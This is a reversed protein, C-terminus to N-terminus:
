KSGLMTVMLPVIALFVFAPLVGLGLPLMLRVGLKEIKIETKVNEAEQMSQSQRLLLESVRAGTESVLQELQQLEVLENDPPEKGFHQIYTKTVLEKAQFLSAGGSTALAVGLLYFGASTAEPQAKKLMRGTVLKSTLLLCLGFLFSVFVIPRHALTGIVDWGVLQAMALTLLPLWIVLRSTSKPNAHAVRIRQTFRDRARILAAVSDLENAVSSGSNKAVTLIYSLGVSNTPVDGISALAQELSVGSRLLGALKTLKIADPTLNM